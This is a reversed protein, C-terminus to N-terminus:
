AARSGAMPTRDKDDPLRRSHWLTLAALSAFPSWAPHLERMKAAADKRTVGYTREVAILLGLDEHPLVDPRGLHFILFMKASWIGLGKVRTVAEIIAADAMSALDSVPLTGDHVCRALDLAYNAKQRSLGCARLKEEGLAAVREPTVEGLAAVLRGVITDGVNVSIQQYVITHFLAAFPTAHTTLAPEPTARKLLAHLLPDTRRWRARAKPLDALLADATM